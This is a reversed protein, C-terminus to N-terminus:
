LGLAQIAEALSQCTVVKLEAPYHFITLINMGIDKTPDPIVRVVMGVGAQGILEMTRGMEPACELSMSMLQSFDALYHFGPSLGALETAVEKRGNQLEETRVDGIFSASLLQKSRNSTILLM